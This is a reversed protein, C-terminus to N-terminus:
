AVSCAVKSVAFLWYKWGIIWDNLNVDYCVVLPASRARMQLSAPPHHTPIPGKHADRTAGNNDRAKDSM